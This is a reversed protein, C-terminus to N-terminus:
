LATNDFSESGFGHNTAEQNEKLQQLAGRLKKGKKNKQEDVEVSIAVEVGKNKLQDGNNSGRVCKNKAEDTNGAVSLADGTANCKRSQKNHTDWENTNDNKQLDEKNTSFCQQQIKQLLKM